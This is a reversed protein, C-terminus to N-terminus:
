GIPHSNRLGIRMKGVFFNGTSKYQAQYLIGPYGPVTCYLVTTSSYISYQVTGSYWGTCYGTSYLVTCYGHVRVTCYQVTSYVGMSYQQPRISVVCVYMRYMSYSVVIRIM